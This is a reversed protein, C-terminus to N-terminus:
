GAGHGKEEDSEAPQYQVSTVVSRDSAVPTGERLPLFLSSSDPKESARVLTLSFILRPSVESVDM